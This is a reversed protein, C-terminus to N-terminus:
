RGAGRRGARAVEAVAGPQPPVEHVVGFGAARAAAAIRPHSAVAQARSWDAQPALAVLHQLGESSSFAWLHREPTACAEALLAHQAESWRPATRRYAAVFTVEAGASRLTDALWDRGEEGRVVLVRRGQWDLASLRQWLAESDFTPADAAPEVRQAAGVGAARLAASTGPGTSGALVQAPWAGRGAAFFHRVANASVFMVLAYGALRQWEARLPAEDALPEIGILPLAVADVGLARLADVWEDAQAPPRTVIVRMPTM